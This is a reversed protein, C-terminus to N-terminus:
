PLKCKAVISEFNSRLLRELMAPDSVKHTWEQKMEGGKYVEFAKACDGARGLCGAAMYHGHSKAATVQSDEDDKPKVRDRTRVVVAYAENCARTGINGQYAGKQLNMMARLLEGREDLPGVCYMSAMAEVTRDIQEALMEVNERYYDRLLAKGRDCKGALMSCQARYSNAWGATRPDSKVLREVDALCSGDRRLIKRSIEHTLSQTDTAPQERGAPTSSAAGADACACKSECPPCSATPSRTATSQDCGVAGLGVLLVSGRLFRSIMRM